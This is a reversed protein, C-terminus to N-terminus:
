NNILLELIPFQFSFIGNIFKIETIEQYIYNNEIDYIEILTKYSSLSLLYEKTKNVDSKTAVFLNTSEYRGEYIDSRYDIPVINKEKYFYKGSKYLYYFFRQHYYGRKGASFETIVDGNKNKAFHGARNFSSNFVLINNFCESNELNKNINNCSEYTFPPIQILILILSIIFNTYNYKIANIIKGNQSM